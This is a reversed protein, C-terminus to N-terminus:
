TPIFNPMNGDAWVMERGEWDIAAEVDRKLLYAILERHRVHPDEHVSEFFQVSIWRSNLGLITRMNDVIFQNKTLKALAMHFEANEAHYSQYDLGKGQVICELTRIEEDSCFAIIYRIIGCELIYRLHFLDVYEGVTLEHIYYGVRPVRKLYGQQTLIGLAERVPTKSVNLEAAIVQENLLQHPEYVGSTIKNKIFAYAYDKKSRTM